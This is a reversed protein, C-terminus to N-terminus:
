MDHGTELGVCYYRPKILHDEHIPYVRIGCGCSNYVQLYSHTTVSLTTHHKVDTTFLSETLLQVSFGAVIVICLQTLQWAERVWVGLVIAHSPVTGSVVM